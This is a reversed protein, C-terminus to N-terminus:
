KYLTFFTDAVKKHGLRNWHVDDAFFYKKITESNDEEGIFAPFFDLFTVGRDQSWNRWTSVYLSDLEGDLIQDPWPYVALTLKISNKQLLDWLRDMHRLSLELGKKGFAEYALADTAWRARMYGVPPRLCRRPQLVCWIKEYVYSTLRFHLHLFYGVRGKQHADSIHWPSQPGQVSENEGWHYFTEDQVDSIDMFLVVENFRLGEEEILYKLKRYYIIPCYSAVAANLVEVQKHSFHESIQGVFSDEFDVGLGETFSDGIFLIRHQSSRKPVTRTSKDRFGLSNTVLSFRFPGYTYDTEARSPMLGHHYIPSAVRILSPNSNKSTKSLRYSLHTLTFDAALFLLGTIAGIIGIVRIRRM